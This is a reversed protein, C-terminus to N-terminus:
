IKEHKKRMNVIDGSSAESIASIILTKIHKECIGWGCLFQSIHGQLFYQRCLQM